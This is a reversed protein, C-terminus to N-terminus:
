ATLPLPSETLRQLIEDLDTATDGTSQVVLWPRAKRIVGKEMFEGFLRLRLDHSTSHNSTFPADHPGLLISWRQSGIVATHIANNARATVPVDSRLQFDLTPESDLLSTQVSLILEIVVANAESSLHSVVLNVGFTGSGNAEHSQPCSFHWESDRQFDDEPTPLVAEPAVPLISLATPCAASGLSWRNSRHLDLTLDTESEHDESSKWFGRFRQGPDAHWM